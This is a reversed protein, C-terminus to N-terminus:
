DIKCLTAGAFTHKRFSTVSFSNRHISGFVCRSYLLLQTRKYRKFSRICGEKKWHNYFLEFHCIIPVTAQHWHQSITFFCLSSSHLPALQSIYQLVIGTPQQPFTSSPMLMRLFALIRFAIYYMYTSRLVLIAYVVSPPHNQLLANKELRCVNILDGLELMKWPSFYVVNLFSFGSVSRDDAHFLRCRGQTSLFVYRCTPKM